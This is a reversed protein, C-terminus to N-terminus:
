LLQAFFVCRGPEAALAALLRWEAPRLYVERGHFLVRHPQSPDLHLVPGGVGQGRGKCPLPSVLDRAELAALRDLACPRERLDQEKAGRPNGRGQLPLPGPPSSAIAAPAQGAPPPPATARRSRRGAPTPGPAQRWRLIENGEAEPVLRRWEGPTLRALDAEGRVGAALLSLVRDRGAIGRLAQGLPLAEAPLGASLRAALSESAEVPAAAWGREAGIQAALGVLWSVTEAAVALRGAPVQVAEEIEATPEAGIWRLLTLVLRAARAKDEASREGTERLAQLLPLDAPECHRQLEGLWDPARPGRPGLPFYLAMAEPTLAALFLLSLPGSSLDLTAGADRRHEPAEPCRRSALAVGLSLWRSLWYFGELSAGSGAALRGLPTVRLREPEAAALLGYREASRLAAQLAAPLAGTTQEGRTWATLTHRYLEALDEAGGGEAGCLLALQQLPTLGALAPAPPDLGPTTYRELLAEQQYTSDALL